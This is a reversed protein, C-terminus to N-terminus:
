TMASIKDNRLFRFIEMLMINLSLWFGGFVYGALVDSPYQIEFYIRSLGVLVCVSVVILTAITRLWAATRHRVFLYAAFGLFIITIFTQESPFSYVSSGAGTHYFLRRLIEDWIEGGVLVFVAFGLELRRDDSRLSVWLLACVVLPLLVWFSALYGFGRMWGAWSEDFLVAVIFSVIVNFTESENALYDQIMAVMFIFFVTTVCFAAIVFLRLKRLSQFAAAGRQLLGSIATYIQLRNKRYWYVTIIVALGLIGGIILYRTITHHFQEWKPGLIKGLSVFAAVWLFAGTYAYKCFTRFPIRTIGSFYGTIHRVGPIFYAIILVKNGYKTFWTSVKDLRDPGMHIRKGYKEFFPHGLRYGIWYAATMGACTGLWGALISLPWSLQGHFVLLGTYSMLLEGPLPLALMELLLSFCLTAYGYADMWHLIFSM